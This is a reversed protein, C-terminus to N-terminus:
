NGEGLRSRLDDQSEGGAPQWGTLPAATAFGRRRDTDLMGRSVAWGGKGGNRNPGTFPSVCDFFGASKESHAAEDARLEVVRLLDALPVGEDLLAEIHKTSRERKTLAGLSLRVRHAVIADVVQGAPTPPGADQDSNRDGTEQASDRDFLTDRPQAPAPTNQLSVRDGYRARIAAQVETPFTAVLKAASVDMKSGDSQEDLAEVIWLTELKPWWVAVGQRKKSTLEEIAAVVLRVPMDGCKAAIAAPSMQLVGLINQSVAFKMLGYATLSMGGTKPHGFVDDRWRRYRAGKKAM